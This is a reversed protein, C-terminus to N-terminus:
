RCASAISTSVQLFSGRLIPNLNPIDKVTRTSPTARPSKLSQTHRTHTQTPQRGSLDTVYDVKKSYRSQGASSRKWRPEGATRLFGGKADHAAHPRPRRPRRRFRSLTYAFVLAHERGGDEHLQLISAPQCRCLLPDRKCTCPRGEVGPRWSLCWWADIGRSVIRGPPPGVKGADSKCWRGLM